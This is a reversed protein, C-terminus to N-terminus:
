LRRYHRRPLAVCTQLLARSLGPSSPSASITREASQVAMSSATAIITAQKEKFAKEVELEEGKLKALSAGGGTSVHSVRKDVNNKESEKGTDGGGIVTVAGNQEKALALAEDVAKGGAAFEKMEFVGVTGNYFVARDKPTAMIKASFLERSQPGIDYIYLTNVNVVKNTEPDIFSGAKLQEVTVTYPHADAPIKKMDIWSKDDKGKELLDKDVAIYDVPQVLEMGNKKLLDMM